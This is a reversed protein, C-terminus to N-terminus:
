IKRIAHQKAIIQNMKDFDVILCSIRYSERDFQITFDGLTFSNLNPHIVVNLKKLAPLGLIIYSGEFHPIVRFQLDTFEHGDITFVTPCFVKTTSIRQESAIRISVKPATKCDKYFDNAMVFEKGVLKISAANGILTDAKSSLEKYYITATFRMLADVQYPDMIDLAASTSLSEDEVKIAVESILANTVVNPKLNGDDTNLLPSVVPTSADILWFNIPLFNPILDPPDYTSTPIMRM